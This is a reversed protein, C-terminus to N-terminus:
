KDYKKENQTINNTKNNNKHNTEFINQFIGKQYALLILTKDVWIKTWVKCLNDASTVEKM